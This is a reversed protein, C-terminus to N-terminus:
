ALRPIVYRQAVRWLLLGALLAADVILILALATTGNVPSMFSDRHHGNASGAGSGPDAAGSAPDISAYPVGGAGLTRPSGRSVGAALAGVTPDGAGAASAASAAGATREGTGFRLVSLPDGHGALPGGSAFLADGLTVLPDAAQTGGVAEPLVQNGVSCILAVLAGLASNPPLTQV